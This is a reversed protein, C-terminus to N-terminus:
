LEATHEYCTSRTDTQILGRSSTKQSTSSAQGRYCCGSFLLTNKTWSKHRTGHYKRKVLYGYLLKSTLNTLYYTTALYVHPRHCNRVRLAFSAPLHCWYLSSPLWDSPLQPSPSQSAPQSNKMDSLPSLPGSLRAVFAPPSLSSFPFLSRGMNM